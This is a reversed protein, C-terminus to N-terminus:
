RATERLRKARRVSKQADHAHHHHQGHSVKRSRALEFPMRVIEGYHVGRCHM